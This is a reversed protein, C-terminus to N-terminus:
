RLYFRFLPYRQLRAIIWPPIFIFICYWNVGIKFYYRCLRIRKETFNTGANSFSVDIGTDELVDVNDAVTHGPFRANMIAMAAAVMPAAMSTGSKFGYSDFSTSSEISSGPAFFDMNPHRQTFSSLSDSDTTSGVTVATSICGPAGLGFQGSNGASIVTAIDVSLLSDIPAKRTDTDCFSTFNGGGLSMNVSAIRKPTNFLAHVLNGLVVYNLGEIQDSRYSLVCPAPNPSCDASNNFRSFVNVAMIDADKAVGHFESSPDSGFGAAIGAVHTGHDCGGVGTCPTAADTGYDEETGDFCYTDAAANNTSFCAEINVKGDLFEHDNQVGTDLVAIIKNDGRGAAGAAWSGSSNIVPNSTELTPAYTEDISYKLGKNEEMFKMLLEINTFNLTVQPSFRGFKGEALVRALEENQTTKILRDYEKQYVSPLIGLDFEFERPNIKQDPIENVVEDVPIDDDFEVKSPNLVAFLLQDYERAYEELRQYQAKQSVPFEVLIPVFGNKEVQEQIRKLDLQQEGPKEDSEQIVNEPFSGLLKEFEEELSQSNVTLSFPILMSIVVFWVFFHKIANQITIRHM